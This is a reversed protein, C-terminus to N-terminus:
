SKPLNTCEFSVYTYQDVEFSVSNGVPMAAGFKSRPGEATITYPGGCFHQMQSEADKRRAQRWSSLGTNLYRIVGGKGLKANPLKLLTIQDGHTEMMHAQCGIFLVALLCLPILKRM